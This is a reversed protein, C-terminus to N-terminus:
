ARKGALFGTSFAAQFNYGGIPGDLDLIEGAFYLGPVLKSEMTRSDIEALSVGGATVEAKAFGRTGTIPIATRKLAAVLAARATKSIQAGRLDLPLSARSLLADILRRPMHEALIGAVQRKGDSAATSRLAEDLQELKQGPLFDVLLMAAAPDPLATVYRSIDLVVPGSLGFHTFLLSGRAAPQPKTQLDLTLSADPVSVGSLARIWAEGTTLPVLAPRPPVVTHGLAGAWAYGDGTTGSGPYSQGGVTIVLKHAALERAATQVRFGEALRELGRVPEALALEAGSRQLRLLLAELVDTARNSVPFIKGSEEVKTPVGEAEILQVLDAPSLAALASHLFSGQEGYARVIGWKDTAHTINCRTGGSMLIKVGPRRNKEILLTRRGRQCSEAAAVLGAAGAGIVVVDYDCKM